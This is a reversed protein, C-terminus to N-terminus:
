RAFLEAQSSVKYVAGCLLGKSTIRPIAKVARWHDEDAKIFSMLQGPWDDDAIVWGMEGPSYALTHRESAFLTGAPFTTATPNCGQVDEMVSGILLQGEDNGGWYLAQGGQPDRAALVRRQSEDFIVFAFTGMIKSLCGLVEETIDNSSTASSFSSYFDLLWHADNAELPPVNRIFADHNASVADIGPWESVEGAFMVHVGGRSAYSCYPSAELTFGCGRHVIKKTRLSEKSASFVRELTVECAIDLQELQQEDPFPDKHRSAAVYSEIGTPARATEPGFVALMHYVM